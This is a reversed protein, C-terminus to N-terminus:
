EFLLIFLINSLDPIYFLRFLTQTGVGSLGDQCFKTHPSDGPGCLKRTVRVYQAVWRSVSGNHRSFLPRERPDINRDLNNEYNSRFIPFGEIKM